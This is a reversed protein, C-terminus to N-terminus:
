SILVICPHFPLQNQSKVCKPALRALSDFVCVCKMQMHRLCVFAIKMYCRRKWMKWWYIWWQFVHASFSFSVNELISMGLKPRLGITGNNGLDAPHINPIDVNSLWFVPSHLSTGPRWFCVCVTLPESRKCTCIAKRHKHCMHWLLLFAIKVYCWGKWMKWQM